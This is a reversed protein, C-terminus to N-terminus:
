FSAGGPTCPEELAAREEGSVVMERDEQRQLLSYHNQMSVFRSWGNLESTYLAKSFQWAWLSSAGSYRVKGSTIADDLARM